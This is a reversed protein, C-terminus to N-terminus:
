HTKSGFLVGFIALLIFLGLVILLGWIIPSTKHKIEPTAAIVAKYEESFIFKGKQSHILYLIYANILTGLPFGLLGLCALITTPTRAKTNLNKIWGGSKFYAIGLLILLPGIIFKGVVMTNEEFLVAIGALPAGVAAFYYLIGVSKISAEHKIHSQRLEQTNEM